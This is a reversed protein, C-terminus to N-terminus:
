NSECGTIRGHFATKFCAFQVVVWVASWCIWTATAISTPLSPRVLTPISIRVRNTRSIQLHKSDLATSYSGTPSMPASTTSAELMEFPNNVWFEGSEADIEGQPEIECAMDMPQSM